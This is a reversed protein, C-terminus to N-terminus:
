HANQVERDIYASMYAAVAATRSLPYFHGGPFIRTSGGRTSLEAWHGMEEAPVLRDGAGGMGVIPTDLMRPEDGYSYEHALAIDARCLAMAENLLDPYDALGEPLGDFSKLLTLLDEDPMTRPSFPYPRHRHPAPASSAFLVAPARGAAQLRWSLEFAIFAGLSHGFISLSGEFGALAEFIEGAIQGVDAAFPEEARSGHGPYSAAVVRVDAPLRSGWRAFSQASGGSYPLMLLMRGGSAPGGGRTPDPRVDWLCGPPNM